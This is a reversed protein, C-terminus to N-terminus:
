ILVLVKLIWSLTLAVDDLQINLTLIFKIPNPLSFLLSAFQEEVSVKEMRWSKLGPGSCLTGLSRFDRQHFSYTMPSQHRLNSIWLSHAHPSDSKSHTELAYLSNVCYPCPTLCVQTCLSLGGKIFVTFLVQSEKSQDRQLAPIIIGMLYSITLFTNM